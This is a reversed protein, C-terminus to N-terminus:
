AKKSAWVQEYADEGITQGPPDLTERFEQWLQHTQADANITTVADNYAHEDAYWQIELWHSPDDRNRFLAFRSTVYQAYLQGARKQVSLMDEAKDPDVRYSYIKIFM